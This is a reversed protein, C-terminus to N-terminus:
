KSKYKNSFEKTEEQNKFVWKYKAKSNRKGQSVERIAHEHEGTQRSAEAISYYENIFEGDLTYQLVNRVKKNLNTEYAHYMNNSSNVWELNEAHNNMTNGDIHNVQLDNYDLLKKKGEIPNFAYCVLRHVKISLSKTCLQVYKGNRSFTLFRQGNYIEGNKYIKHLPLEDVIKMEINDFKSPVWNMKEM